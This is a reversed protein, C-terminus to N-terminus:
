QCEKQHKLDQLDQEDRQVRYELVATTAARASREQLETTEQDHFYNLAPVVAGLVTAATVAIAGGTVWWHSRKRAPM